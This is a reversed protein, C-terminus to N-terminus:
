IRIPREKPQGLFARIRDARDEYKVECEWIVMSQWGLAELELQVKRDRELNRELKLSWYGTNSKPQSARNCGEHQHWFCGHVFIVKKRRLFVLDPRGPIGRTSVRYRYGMSHVLRRIVLEPSTDNGRIRAMCASRQEKTLNDM